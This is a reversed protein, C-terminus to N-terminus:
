IVTIYAGTKYPDGPLSPTKRGIYATYLDHHQRDTMGSQLLIPDLDLTDLQAYETHKLVVTLFRTSPHESRVVFPTWTARNRRRAFRIRSEQSGEWDSPVIDVLDMRGIVRGMDTEYLAGNGPTTVIISKRLVEQTLEWLGPQERLHTAAHSHEIDVSVVGGNATTEVYQRTEGTLYHYM